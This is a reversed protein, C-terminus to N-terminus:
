TAQPSLEKKMAEYLPTDTPYDVKVDRTIGMFSRVETEPEGNAIWNEMALWEEVTEADDDDNVILENISAKLAQTKAQPLLKELELIVNTAPYFGKERLLKRLAGRCAVLEFFRAEGDFCGEQGYEIVGEADKDGRLEELLLFAKETSAYSDDGLDVAGGKEVEKPDVVCLRGYDNVELWTETESKKKSM